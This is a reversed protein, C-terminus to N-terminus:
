SVDSHFQNATASHYATPSPSLESVINQADSPTNTFTNLSYVRMGEIQRSAWMPLAWIAGSPEQGQLWIELCALGGPGGTV